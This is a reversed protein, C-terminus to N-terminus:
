YDRVPESIFPSKPRFECVGQLSKGKFKTAATSSVFIPRYFTQRYTGENIYFVVVGRVSPCVSSPLVIDNEAHICM